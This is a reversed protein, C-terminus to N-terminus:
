NGNKANKIIKNTIEKVTSKYDSLLNNLQTEDMQWAPNKTRWNTRSDQTVIERFKKYLELIKWLSIKIRGYQIEIDDNKYNLGGQVILHDNFNNFYSSRHCIANRARTIDIIIKREKSELKDYFLREFYYSLERLYLILNEIIFHQYSTEKLVRKILSGVQDFSSVFNGEVRADIRGQEQDYIAVELVHAQRKTIADDEKDLFKKEEELVEIQELIERQVEVPPLPIKTKKAKIITYTGVTGGVASASIQDKIFASDFLHKIFNSNVNKSFNKLWIINGDKFYFKDNKKVLYCIGLTGVGTVMLDDEKPAGYKNSYESFMEESIFLENNVFGQNALKVIERARYFPVGYTKWESEYVRKSSTIECVEGLEVIPWKQSTFQDAEKYRDGSLNYDSSEAIKEKGVLHSLNKYVNNLEFVKDNKLAFKYKRIIELAKPLDNKDIERRQAGLGYGDNEIKIFVINQTKKALAKDFLLIGTKVGSYPQFVGAPLSIVALLGDEILMKRLQKYANGSQFIIGEPVIIGARGNPRLHELIYDVFLVESRNAQVSFRKHPKIGGKPTMFPPNALMVDFSEDWKEESSLTDYEYITPNPFGHLYMNVKSLRVMDPSIDYGVSHNMLQKKEDPTLPKEKNKPDDKGDHQRLIHKYGSILFGATGCAPDCITDDKKPDIAAVIFDIIHRPTRFQGADGQSGLVSLLYEFSDGLDESHEYTFGNIEKLFLSLTEPNRYPLFADKFIDRFLQPINPNLSLKALTEVYLDMRDHGGLKPDMLKTWSYKEYGNTFFRAKGGLEQSGKDMDDMFKYILATTIQEVQAKPDPVKGVLIDRASDIKRKTDQNLM